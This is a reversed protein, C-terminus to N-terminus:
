LYLKVFHCKLITVRYFRGLALKLWYKLIYIFDKGENEMEQSCVFFSQVSCIDPISLSLVIGLLNM